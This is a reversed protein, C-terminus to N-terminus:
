VKPPRFGWVGLVLSAAVTTGLIVFINAEPRLWIVYAALAWIIIITIGIWPYKM